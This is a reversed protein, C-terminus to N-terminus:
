ESVSDSVYSGVTGFADLINKCFKILIIIFLCPWQSILRPPFSQGPVSDSVTTLHCQIKGASNTYTSQKQAMATHIGNWSHSDPYSIFNIKPPSKPRNAAICESQM